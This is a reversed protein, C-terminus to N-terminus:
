PSPSVGGWDAPPMLFLDSDQTTAGAATLMAHVQGRHHTQHNFIHPIVVGLPATVERGAVGSFWTLAGGVPGATHDDAWALIVGDMATRQATLDTWETVFGGSEALPVGPPPCQDFRSFWIRDAWLLHALTRHISGFFAGRDARRQADDLGHAAMFAVRNQWRNYRAMMRVYHNDIMPLSLEGPDM